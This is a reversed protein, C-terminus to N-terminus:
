AATDIREALGGSHIIALRQVWELQRQAAVLQEPLLRENEDGMGERAVRDAEETLRRLKDAFFDLLNLPEDPDLRAADLELRILSWERLENESIEGAAYLEQVLNTFERPTIHEPDYKALIQRFRAAAGSADVAASSEDSTAMESAEIPEARRGYGIPGLYGNALQDVRM